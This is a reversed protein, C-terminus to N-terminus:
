SPQVWIIENGSIIDDPHVIEECKPSYEKPLAVRLLFGRNGAGAAIRVMRAAIIMNQSRHDGRGAPAKCLASGEPIMGCTM